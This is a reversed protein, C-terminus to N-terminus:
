GDRTTEVIASVGGAEGASEPTPFKDPIARRLEHRKIQASINSSGDHWCCILDGAGTIVDSEGVLMAACCGAKSSSTSPAFKVGLEITVQFPDARVVSKSVVLSIFACIKALSISCGPWALTATTVSGGPPPVVFVSIKVILGIWLSMGAIEAMEGVVTAVPLEPNVRLMVPCFKLACDVTRTFPAIRPATKWLVM